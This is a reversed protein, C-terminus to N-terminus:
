EETPMETVPGTAEFDSAEPSDVSLAEVAQDGEPGSFAYLLTAGTEQDACLEAEGASEGGEPEPGAPASIAYCTAARGAIERDDIPEAGPLDSEATVGAGFFPVFSSLIMHPGDQGEPILSCEVEGEEDVCLITEGDATHVVRGEDFMVSIMPPDWSVVFEDPPADDATAAYTIRTAEVAPLEPEEFLEEPVEDEAAPEEIPVDPDPEDVAVDGDDGDCAALVLLVVALAALLRSTRHPM